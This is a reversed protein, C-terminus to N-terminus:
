QVYQLVLKDAPAARGKRTLADQYAADVLAQAARYDQPLSRFFMIMTNLNAGNALYVTYLKELNKLYYIEKAITANNVKRDLLKVRVGRFIKRQESKKQEISKTTDSYLEQLRDYADTIVRARKLKAALNKKAAKEQRAWRTGYKSQFFEIAGIKGVLEAMSEELMRPYNFEEHLREHLFLNAIEPHDHSLYRKTIQSRPTYVEYVQTDYAEKELMKALNDMQEKTGVQHVHLPEDPSNFAYKKTAALAWRNSNETEDDNSTSCFASGSNLRYEDRIFDDLSDIMELKNRKRFSFLGLKEEIGPKCVNLQPLTERGHVGICSTFALVLGIALNNRLSM